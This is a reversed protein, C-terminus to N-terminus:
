KISSLAGFISLPFTTKATIGEDFEIIYNIRWDEAKLAVLEAPMPEESLSASLQMISGMNLSFVMRTNPSVEIPTSAAVQPKPDLDLQGETAVHIRDSVQAMEYIIEGENFLQDMVVKQEPMQLTPHDPNIVMKIRDIQHDGQSRSAREIKVESYYPALETKGSVMTDTIELWADYVESASGELIDYFGSFQMGDDFDFHYVSKLPLTAKLLDVWESANSKELGYFPMMSELLSLLLSNWSEPLDSFGGLFALDSSWDVLPLLETINVDQSDILAALSSGDVATVGTSLEVSQQEVGLGMQFQESEKLLIEYFAFYSEMMSDLDETLMGFDVGPPDFIAMMGQQYANLTTVATARLEDNLTFTLELTQQPNSVLQLAYNVALESWGDPLPTGLMSSLLVVKDGVDYYSAGFQGVMSIQIANQFAEFDDIPVIIAIVPPAEISEMWVAAHWPKAPDVLEVLDIGLMIPLGSIVGEQGVTAALEKLDAMLKDYSHIDITVQPEGVAAHLNTSSLALCSTILLKRFLSRM